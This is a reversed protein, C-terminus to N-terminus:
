NTLLFESAKIGTRIGGSLSNHKLLNNIILLKIFYLESWVKAKQPKPVQIESSM